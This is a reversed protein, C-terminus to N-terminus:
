SLHVIWDTQGAWPATQDPKFMFSTELLGANEMGRRLKTLQSDGQAFDPPNIFTVSHCTYGKKELLNIVALHKGRTAHHAGILNIIGGPSEHLIEETRKRMYTERKVQNEKLINESPLDIPKLQIGANHLAVVMKKKEAFADRYQWLGIDLDAEEVAAFDGDNIRAYLARQRETDTSEFLMTKVGMGAFQRANRSIYIPLIVDAHDEGFYTIDARLNILQRYDVPVAIKKLHAAIADPGLEWPSKRFEPTDLSM